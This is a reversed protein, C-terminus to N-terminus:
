DVTHMIFRHATFKVVFLCLRLSVIHRCSWVLKELIINNQTYTLYKFLEHVLLCYQTGDDSTL